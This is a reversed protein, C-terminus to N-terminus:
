SWARRGRLWDKEWKKFGKPKGHFEFVDVIDHVKCRETGGFKPGRLGRGIMQEFLLGSTTPRAVVIRELNPADFGTTLVGFNVLVTVDGSEFGRIWHRRLARPTDATICRAEIGAKRWMFTLRAAHTTSSAFVLTPPAPSRTVIEKISKNRRADRGVRELLTPHYARFKVLHEQELQSLLFRTGVRQSRIELKSLVRHHQLWEYPGPSTALQKPVLLEAQFLRVLESVQDRDVGRGPTATLGLAPVAASDGGRTLLRLMRKYTPAVAHHAEDFVVLSLRSILRKLNKRGAPKNRLALLKRMGAVMFGAEFENDLEHNGWFRHVCGDFSRPQQAFVAKYARAAQECVEETLAIWLVVGGRDAQLRMIADLATRTKGAGTPLTAMARRGAGQRLADYIQNSLDQQFGELPALRAFAPLVEVTPESGVGVLGAYEPGLGLAACITKALPRGRVWRTVLRSPWDTTGGHVGMESRLKRTRKPYGILLADRVPKVALLQTDYVAAIDRALSAAPRRAASGAVHELGLENWLGILVDRDLRALLDAPYKKM